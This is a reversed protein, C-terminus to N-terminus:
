GSVFGRTIRIPFTLRGGLITTSGKYTFRLRYAAAHTVRFRKTVTGLSSISVRRGLTHFTGRKTGRALAVTVHGRASKERLQLRVSYSPGRSDVLQLGGSADFPAVAVVRVPASWPSGLEGISSFRTARAVVTYVGPGDFRLPALGTTSDPSTEKSPGAIAGDPGLTADPAFRVEHSDAGPNLAVPLPLVNTAFSGPARLLFRGPPATLATSAAIGFQYTETSLPTACSSDKEGYNVLTITYVGNGSYNVRSPSTYSRSICSVGSSVSTGAANVVSLQYRGPAPPFAVGVEPRMNRVTPPAGAAIVVPAGDDGTVTVTAADAAAPAAATLALAALVGLRLRSSFM